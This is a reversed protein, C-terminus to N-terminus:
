VCLQFVIFSYKLSSFIGDKFSLDGKGYAGMGDRREKLWIIQSENDVEARGNVRGEGGIGSVERLGLELPCEM